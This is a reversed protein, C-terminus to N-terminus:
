KKTKTKARSGWWEKLLANLSLRREKLISEQKRLNTEKNKM